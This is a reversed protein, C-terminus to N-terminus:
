CGGCVREAAEEAEAHAEPHQEKNFVVQVIGARDRLDIFILTGWIAGVLHVWGMLVVDKDAYAARLSGCYQTRKLEGLFDLVTM